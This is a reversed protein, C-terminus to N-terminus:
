NAIRCGQFFEMIGRLLCQITPNLYVDKETSKIIPIPQHIGIGSTADLTAVVPLAVNKGLALPFTNLRLVRGTAM